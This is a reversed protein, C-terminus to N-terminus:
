QGSLRSKAPSLFAVGSAKREKVRTKNKLVGDVEEVYSEQIEDYQIEVTDGVNLQSLGKVRQFNVNQDVWFGMEYEEGKADDRQYVIAVYKGDAYSVTGRLTQAAVSESAGGKGGKPKGGANESQALVKGMIVSVLLAVLLGMVKLVRFFRNCSM